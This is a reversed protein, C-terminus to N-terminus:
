LWAIPADAAILALVAIELLLVPMALWAAVHKLRMLIVAALTAGIAEAAALYGLQNAAAHASLWLSAIIAMPAGVFGFQIAGQTIVALVWPRSRIYRYAALQEGRTKSVRGHVAGTPGIYFAVLSILTIGLSFLPILTHVHATALAAATAPGLISSIKSSMSRFSNAVTREDAPVTDGIYANVAPRYVSVSFGVCLGAIVLLGTASWCQQYVVILLASVMRVADVLMLSYRRNISDLSLSAVGLSLVSSLSCTFLFITLDRDPNNGMLVILTTGIGLLGDGLMNLLQISLLTQTQRRSRMHAPRRRRLDSSSKTKM